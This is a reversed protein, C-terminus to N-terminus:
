QSISTVDSTTGSGDNNPATQSEKSGAGRAEPRLLNRILYDLFLTKAVDPLRNFQEQSPCDSCLKGVLQGVRENSADVLEEADERALLDIWQTPHNMDPLDDSKLSNMGRLFARLQAGSPEPIVGKETQEFGPFGTFDWELVEPMWTANFKPM